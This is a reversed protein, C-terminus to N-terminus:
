PQWGPTPNSPSPPLPPCPILKLLHTPSRSPTSLLPEALLTDLTRKTHALLTFLMHTCTPADGILGGTDGRYM